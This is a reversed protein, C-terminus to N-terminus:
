SLFVSPGAGAYGSAKLFDEYSEITLIDRAAKAPEEVRSYYAACIQHGIFYGLDAPRDVANEGEYLWGSSDPQHMEGQFRSWLEDEHHRGYVYLDADSPGLLLSVFFDAAGENIAKALLTTTDAARQNAHVYEHLVLRPLDEVTMLVSKHWDSLGDFPTTETRGMMELGILLGNDSVTGGSSMRGILLYTDMPVAGGLLDDLRSCAESIQGVQAQARQGIDRISDFYTRRADITGALQKGSEIRLRWFEKLGVTGPALYREELFSAAEPLEM